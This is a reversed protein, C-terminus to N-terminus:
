EMMAKLEDDRAHTDKEEAANDSSNGEGADEGEPAAGGPGFAKRGLIFFRNESNFIAWEDVIGRVMGRVETSRSDRRPGAAAEIYSTIWGVYRGAVPQSHLSQVSRPATWFTLAKTSESVCM